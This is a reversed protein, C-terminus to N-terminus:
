PWGDSSGVVWSPWAGSGGVVWSPWGDSRGVVWLPWAGSCIYLRRRAVGLENALWHDESWHAALPSGRATAARQPRRRRRGSSGREGRVALETCPARGGAASDAEGRRGSRRKTVSPQGGRQPRPRLWGHHPHRGTTQLGRQPIGATCFRGPNCRHSASATHITSLGPSSVPWVGPYCRRIEAPSPFMGKGVIADGRKQPPCFTGKGLM